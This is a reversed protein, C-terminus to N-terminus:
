GERWRRVGAAERVGAGGGKAMWGIGGGRRNTPVVRDWGPQVHRPTMLVCEKQGVARMARSSIEAAQASSGGALLRACVPGAGVARSQFWRLVGTTSTTLRTLSLTTLMWLSRVTRAGALSSSNESLGECFRTLPMPVPTTM